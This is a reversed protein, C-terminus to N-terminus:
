HYPSWRSRCVAYRRCRCIHILSLEELFSMVEKLSSEIAPKADEKLTKSLTTFLFTEAAYELLLQLSNVINLCIAELIFRKLGISTNKLTSEIPTGQSTDRQLTLAKPLEYEKCLIMCEGKSDKSIRGARSAMHKYLTSNLLANGISVGFVMVTRCPLNVGLALTSTCVLVKIAGTRYNKEIFRREEAKMGAHHCAIGKFLWEPKNIFYPTKVYKLEKLLEEGRKKLGISLFNSLHAAVIECMQKSPAFLLVAGKEVARKVVAVVKMGDKDVEEVVEKLERGYFIRSGAKVCEEVRMVEVDKVYLAARLWGALELANGATAMTLFIQIQYHLLKTLLIELLGGRTEDAILQAEDVIVGALTDLKGRQMLECVLMNAREITCIIVDFELTNFAFNFGLSACKFNLKECLPRLKNYSDRICM